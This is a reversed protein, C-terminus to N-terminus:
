PCTKGCFKEVSLLCSPGWQEECCYPDNDCIAKICPSCDRGLPTGATCEDHDCAACQGALCDDDQVGCNCDCKCDGYTEAACTWTSPATVHKGCTGGGSGGAGSGGAGSGSSGSTAGGGTAGGSPDVTTSGFCAAPNPESRQDNSPPPATTCTGGTGGPLAFETSAKAHTSEIDFLTCSKDFKILGFVDAQARVSASAGAFAEGEVKGTLKDAGCQAEGSLSAYADASISASAYDYFKLEFNPKVDCRLKIAGGLTWAPGTVNYGETHDFVPSLTSSEYKLGATVKVSGNAGIVVQAKGGYAFNCDLTAKFNASIPIPLPGVHATGLDIPYEFLTTNTSKAIKEAILKTVAASDLTTSTDLQADIEVEAKLEGTAIAHFETVKFFGIDAGIDWSPTFSIQGKTTKASAHFSVSQPPTLGLDFPVTEDLLSKGAFDLLKIPDGNGQPRLGPAKASRAQSAPGDPGLAPTELTVQFKGDQVADTILAQDTEVVIGADTKSVSKVKRLFGFPNKQNTASRDSVLIDGAKKQLIDDSGAAPFVLRNPEVIVQDATSQPVITVKDSLVAASDSSGCDVSALGSCAVFSTFSFIRIIRKM